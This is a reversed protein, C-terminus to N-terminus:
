AAAEKGSSKRRRKNGDNSVLDILETLAATTRARDGTSLFDQLLGNIAGIILTAHTASLKENNPANAAARGILDIWVSAGDQRAQRSLKLRNFMSLGDVEFLLRFYRQNPKDTAWDWFMFLSDRLSAPKKRAALEKLSTEVRHRVLALADALLKEKTDFHYILLRASTGVSDALPRLSLDASGNALLTAVIKDLLESRRDTIADM